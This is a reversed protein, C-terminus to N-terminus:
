QCGCQTKKFVTPTYIKVNEITSRPAIYQATVVSRLFQRFIKVSEVSKSTKKDPTVFVSVAYLSQNKRFFIQYDQKSVWKLSNQM